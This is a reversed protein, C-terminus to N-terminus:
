MKPSPPQNTWVTKGGSHALEFTPGLKELM